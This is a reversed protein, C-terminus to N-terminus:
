MYIQMYVSVRRVVSMDERLPVKSSSKGKGLTPYTLEGYSYMFIYILQQMVAMLLARVVQHQLLQCSNTPNFKPTGDGKLNPKGPVKVNVDVSRM